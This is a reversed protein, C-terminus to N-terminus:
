VQNANREREFWIGIYRTDAITGGLASFLKFVFFLMIKQLTISGTKM